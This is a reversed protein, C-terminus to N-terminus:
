QSVDGRYAGMVYLEDWRPVRMGPRSSPSALEAADSESSYGPASDSSSESSTAADEPCPLLRLGVECDTLVGVFVWACVGDFLCDELLSTLLFATSLLLGCFRDDVGEDDFFFDALPLLPEDPSKVLFVGRFGALLAWTCCTVGAEDRLDDIERAGAPRVASPGLDLDLGLRLSLASASAAPTPTPAPASCATCFGSAKPRSWGEMSCHRGVGRDGKEGAIGSVTWYVYVHAHTHAIAAATTACIGCRLLSWHRQGSSRLASGRVMLTVIVTVNL